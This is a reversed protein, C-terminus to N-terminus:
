ARDFRASFADYNASPRGAVAFVVERFVNAYDGDLLQGFADAVLAPDNGFVGAGWAGLVLTRLSHAVAVRLVLEDGDLLLRSVIPWVRSRVTADPWRRVFDWPTAEDHGPPGFRRDRLLAELARDDAPLELDPGSM